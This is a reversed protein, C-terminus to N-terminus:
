VRSILIPQKEGLGINVLVALGDAIVVRGGIDGGEFVSVTKGLSYFIFMDTTTKVPGVLLDDDPVTRFPYPRDRIAVPWVSDLYNVVVM